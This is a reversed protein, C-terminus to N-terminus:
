APQQPQATIPCLGNGSSARWERGDRDVAWIEAGPFRALIVAIESPAAAYLATSLADAVAASRHRVTILRWHWASLGSRPDFLHHSAGGAGLPCGAGASTALAADILRVVKGNDRSVLWPTGDTRPGLARQEGLDVLVHRFGRARLLDTIRDTVYGQGLGNLTIRQDAGLRVHDDALVIKRWDVAARVHAIVAESPTETDPRTSFWDVYTEWLAQVTPDFLGGSADAVRFALALARRLDRSSHVLVGDRNLARIESTDRFLSLIQELREVEAVVMEAAARAEGSSTGSLVIRADSGMAFGRWEYAIRAGARSALAALGSGAAAAAFIGIARRRTPHDITM